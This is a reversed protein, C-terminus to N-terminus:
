MTGNPVDMDLGCLVHFSNTGYGYYKQVNRTQIAMDSDDPNYEIM